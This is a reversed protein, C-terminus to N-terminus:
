KCRQTDCSCTLAGGNDGNNTNVTFFCDSANAFSYSGYTYGWNLAPWFSSSFSGCILTTGDENPVNLVAGSDVCGIVVPLAGGLFTKANNVRANKKAGMSNAIVAVMLISIIVVILLIEILTFGKKNNTRKVSKKAKM